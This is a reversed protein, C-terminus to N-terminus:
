HISSKTIADNIISQLNISQLNIFSLVGGASSLTGGIM